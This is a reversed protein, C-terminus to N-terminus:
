GPEVNANAAPVIIFVPRRDVESGARGLVVITARFLQAVRGGPQFDNHFDVDFVVRTSPAVNYFTTADRRDYGTPMDPMGRVPTVAKVFDATTRGAVIRMEAPDADTRTTINQRTQNALTTVANVVSDAIAPGGGPNNFVIPNGMADVTNTDRALQAAPTYTDRTTGVDIGVFYAGRARMADRLNAYGHLGRIGSYPYSNGVGNHWDADSFLVLIPVRGERFCAWGFTREGPAVACDRAPDVVGAWGGGGTPLIPTRDSEHGAIGSGELAQYLAEVQSEPWDGGRAAVMMNVAALSRDPMPDLRQRVRLIWDTTDGYVGNPIDRFDGVGYRADGGSLASAIGPIIRMTLTARLTDITQQMSGTTDVLFFIDAARIRTQFEFEQHVHPQPSTATSYPLTVYLTGTLPRSGPDAPNSMAVRETLDPVMDGDTDGNCPNTGAEREEADTLGDNDSDSDIFNPLADTDCNDPGRGCVFDRIEDTNYMPYSRRAEVADPYGDGDSDDDQANPRGDMDLDAMGELGDSIGDGDGDTCEIPGSDPPPPADNGGDSVPSSDSGGDRRSPPTEAPSCASGALLLM